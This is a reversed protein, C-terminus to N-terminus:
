SKRYGLHTIESVAVTKGMELMVKKVAATIPGLLTIVNLMKIVILSLRAIATTRLNNLSAASTLM